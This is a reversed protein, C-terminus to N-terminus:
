IKVRKEGNAKESELNANFDEQESGNKMARNKELNVVREKLKNHEEKTEKVGELNILTEDILDMNRNHVGVNYFEERSPKELLYNFTKEM